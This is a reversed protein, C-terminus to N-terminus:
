SGRRSGSYGTITEARAKYVGTPLEQTVVVVPRGCQVTRRGNCAMGAVGFSGGSRNRERKGTVAVKGM